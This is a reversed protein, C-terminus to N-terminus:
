LRDQEAFLSQSRGVIMLCCHHQSISQNTRYCFKSVPRDTRNDSEAIVRDDANHTVGEDRRHDVQGHVIIALIAFARRYSQMHFDALLMGHGGMMMSLRNCLCTNSVEKHLDALPPDLPNESNSRPLWVFRFKLQRPRTKERASPMKAIYLDEHTLLCNRERREQEWVARIAAVSFM